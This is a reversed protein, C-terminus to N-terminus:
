FGVLSLVSSNASAFTRGGITVSSGEGIFGGHMMFDGDVRMGNAVMEGDTFPAAAWVVDGDTSIEAWFYANSIEDAWM